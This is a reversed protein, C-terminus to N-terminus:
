RHGDVAVDVVRFRVNPEVNRMRGPTEAEVLHPVEGIEWALLILSSDANELYYEAHSCSSGGTKDRSWNCGTGDTHGCEAMSALPVALRGRPGEYGVIGRSRETLVEFIGFGVTTPRAVIFFLPLGPPVLWISTPNTSLPSSVPM